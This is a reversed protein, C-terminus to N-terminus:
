PSCEFARPSAPRCWLVSLAGRPSGLCLRQFDQSVGAGVPAEQAGGCAVVSGRCGRWAACLIGSRGPLLRGRVLWIRGGLCFVARQVSWLQPLDQLSSGARGGEGCKYGAPAEHGPCCSGWRPVTAHSPHLRVCRLLCPIPVSPANELFLVAKRTM